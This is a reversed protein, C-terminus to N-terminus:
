TTPVQRAFYFLGDANVYYCIGPIGYHLRVISIETIM